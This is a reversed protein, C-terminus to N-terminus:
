PPGYCTTDMEAVPNVGDSTLTGYVAIGGDALCGIALANLRDIFADVDFTSPVDNCVWIVPNTLGLVEDPGAQLSGGYSKCLLRSSSTKVAPVAGRSTFFGRATVTAGSLFTSTCAVLPQDGLGEATDFIVTTGASNTFALYDIVYISNAAVAGSSAIVFAQHSRNTLTGFNLLVEEGDTCTAPIVASTNHSPDALARSVGAVDSLVIVAASLLLNSALRQKM